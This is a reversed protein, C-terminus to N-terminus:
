KPRRLSGIELWTTKPLPLRPLRFVCPKQQLAPMAPSMSTEREGVDSGLTNEGKNQRQSKKRMM